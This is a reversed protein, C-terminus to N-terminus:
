RPRRLWFVKLAGNLKNNKTTAPRRRLGRLVLTAIATSPGGRGQVPGLIGFWLLCLNTTLGWHSCSGIVPKHLQDSGREANHLPMLHARQECSPGPVVVTATTWLLTPWIVVKPVCSSNMSPRLTHLSHWGAALTEVERCRVDNAALHRTCCAHAPQIELSFSSRRWIVSM